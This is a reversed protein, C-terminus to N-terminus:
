SSGGAVRDLTSMGYCLENKNPDVAMLDLGLVREMQALIRLRWDLKKEGRSMANNIALFETCILALNHSAVDSKSMEQALDLANAVIDMQDPHFAFTRRELQSPEPVVDLPIDDGEGDDPMLDQGASEAMQSPGLEGGVHIDPDDADPDPAVAAAPTSAPLADGGFGAGAVASAVKNDQEASQKSVAARVYDRVRTELEALTHGEAYDVWKEANKLTLVRVLERVKTWGLNVVRGRLEDSLDKLEVSLRFWIKRLSFAKKYHLALEQEAYEQFTQYGWLTFVPKNGPHGDIPTDYVEYLIQALRMYVTDVEKAVTRAEIRKKEAWEKSGVPLDSKKKKDSAGGHVVTLSPAEMM